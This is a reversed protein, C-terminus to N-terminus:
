GGDHLSRKLSDKNYYIYGYPIIQHANEREIYIYVM